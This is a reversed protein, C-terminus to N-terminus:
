STTMRKPRGASRSVRRADPGVRGPRGRCGIPSHSGHAPLLGPLGRRLAARRRRRRRGLHGAARRVVSLSVEVEVRGLKGRGGARQRRAHSVEGAPWRIIPHHGQVQQHEAGMGVVDLDAHAPRDRQVRPAAIADPQDVQGAALEARVARGVLPTASAASALATSPATSRTLRASGSPQRETSSSSWTSATTRQTRAWRGRAM